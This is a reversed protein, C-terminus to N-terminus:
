WKWAKSKKEGSTITGALMAISKGPYNDAKTIERIHQLYCRGDLQYTRYKGTKIKAETRVAYQLIAYSKEYPSFVKVQNIM